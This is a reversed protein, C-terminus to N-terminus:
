HWAGVAVMALSAVVTATILASVLMRGAFEYISM